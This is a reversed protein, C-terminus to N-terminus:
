ESDGPLIATVTGDEGFAVNTGGGSRRNGAAIALGTLQDTGM